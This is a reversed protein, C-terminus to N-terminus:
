TEVPAQHRHQHQHHQDSHRHHHQRHSQKLSRAFSCSQGHLTTTTSNNYHQNYCHTTHHLPHLLSLLAPPAQHSALQRGPQSRRNVFAKSAGDNRREKVTLLIHSAVSANRKKGEKKPSYFFVSLLSQM